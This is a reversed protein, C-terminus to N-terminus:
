SFAKGFVDKLLLYTLRVLVEIELAHVVSSRFSPRLCRLVGHDVENQLLYQLLCLHVLRNGSQYTMLRQLLVLDDLGCHVQIASTLLLFLTQAHVRLSLMMPQLVLM